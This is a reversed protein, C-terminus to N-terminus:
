SSSPWWHYAFRPQKSAHACGRLVDSFFEFTRVALLTLPTLFISDALTHRFSIASKESTEPSRRGGDGGASFAVAPSIDKTDTPMLFEIM